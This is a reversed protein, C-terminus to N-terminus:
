ETSVLELCLDVCKGIRGENMVVLDKVISRDLQPFMTVLANINEELEKDYLSKALYEAKSKQKAIEEEENVKKPQQKIQENTEQEKVPPPTQFFSSFSKAIFTASNTIVESPTMDQTRDLLSTSTSAQSTQPENILNNNNSHKPIPSLIKAKQKEIKAKHENLRQEWEEDTITLSNKNLKELFGIVVWFSSLYYSVEGTLWDKNRFREIYYLNSTLKLDKKEKNVSNSLIIYILLPIFSDANTEKELQKLLGFIVKCCNLICIIKDRPSRYSNMKTLQNQALKIFESGKKILKTDLDLHKPTIWNFKRIQKNLMVDKIIDESHSQDLSSVQIAPSFVQDYLRNMILKEMGEQCNIYETENMKNFPHCALMKSYIFNKFDSILKVQENVSWTRKSFALLFSKLYRVIPDAKKNKLYTLFRQFDFPLNNPDQKQISKHLENEKEKEAKLKKEQIKLELKTTPPVTKNEITDNNENNNNNNNNDNENIPPNLLIYPSESVSRKHNKNKDNLNLLDNNAPNESISLNSLDNSLKYESKSRQHSPSPSPSSPSSPFLGSLNSSVNQSNLINSIENDHSDFTDDNHLDIKNHQQFHSLNHDNQIDILNAKEPDNIVISPQLDNTIQSNITINLNPITQTNSISKENLNQSLIESIQKLSKDKEKEKDINNTNQHLISNSHLNSDSEPESGSESNSDSDSSDDNLDILNDTQNNYTIGSLAIPSHISPTLKSNTSTTIFNGNINTNNVSTSLSSDHLMNTTPNLIFKQNLINSNKSSNTYRNQDDKINSNM